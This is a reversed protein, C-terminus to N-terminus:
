TSQTLKYSLAQPDDDFQRITDYDINEFVTFLIDWIQLFNSDLSSHHREFEYFEYLMNVEAKKTFIVDELFKQVIKYYGDFLSSSASDHKLGLGYSSEMEMDASIDDKPNLSKPPDKKLKKAKNLGDKEKIFSDFDMNHKGEFIRFEEQIYSCIEMYMKHDSLRKDERGVYDIEYQAGRKIIKKVQNRFDSTEGAKSLNFIGLSPQFSVPGDKKDRKVKYIKRGGPRQTTSIDQQLSL